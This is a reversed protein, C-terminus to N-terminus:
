QDSSIHARARAVRILQQRRSSQFIAPAHRVNIHALQGSCADDRGTRRISNLSRRAIRDLSPLSCQVQEGRRKGSRLSRIIYELRWTKRARALEFESVADPDRRSIWEDNDTFM